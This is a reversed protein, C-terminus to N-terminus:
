LPLMIETVFVDEEDQRDVYGQYRDVVKDMRMLGFGHYKQNKTSLYLKGSKKLKGSTSNMVYIYLQGKLIDIYVRIFRKNKETKMCAEMANDMLNGIILSLDIESVSLNKPVIAKADVTIGRSKALSIKSNLVADIMINGTKIVTDVATLDTDLENLYSALKDLNGMILYAKMTQIHNHYDHRWGRTQRYMNEVEQCHKEMLDSQYLSIRRDTLKIMYQKIFFAASIFFLLVFIIVAIILESKM